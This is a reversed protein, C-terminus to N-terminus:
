AGGILVARVVASNRVDNPKGTAVPRGSAMVTVRDALNFALDLDHEVVIFGLGRSALARVTIALQTREDDSLGAAPEDLLVVTQIDSILALVVDVIRRQGSTLAQCAETAAIGLGAQYAIESALARTERRVRNAKWDSLYWHLYSVNRMEALKAAFLDVPTVEDPITPSQFSRGIGARGISSVSMRSTSQHDISVSGTDPRVLGMMVNLMTTKGSGNPGLLVHVEGSSVSVADSDQMDLAAIGGYHKRAGSVEISHPRATQSRLSWILDALGEPSRVAVSADTTTRASSDAKERRERIKQAIDRVTQSIGGRFLLVALVVVVGYIIDTYGDIKIVLRPLIYLVIVGVSPGFLSRSGGVVVAALMLTTLDLSFMPPVLTGSIHSYIAGGLGAFVSSLIYTSLRIKWVRVGSSALVVSSERMRRMNMGLPSSRVNRSILLTLILAAAALIFIGHRDFPIGFLEPRSYIVMGQSGDTVPQLIAVISPILFVIFFGIMGFYFRGVRLGPISLISGVIIAFLTGALAAPWFDWALKETLAGATYAGTAFVMVIGLVFEGALGLALGLGTACIAFTLAASGQDLWDKRQIFLGLILLIIAFVGIGALSSQSFWQRWSVNAGVGSSSESTEM